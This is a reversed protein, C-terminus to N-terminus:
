FGGRNTPGHWAGNSYSYEMLVPTTDTGEYWFVDQTGNAHVAVAPGQSNGYKNVTLLQQGTNGGYWTSGIHWM